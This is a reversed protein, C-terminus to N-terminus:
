RVICDSCGMLGNKEGDTLSLSFNQRCRRAESLLRCARSLPFRNGRAMRHPLTMAFKMFNAIIRGAARNISLKPRWNRARMPAIFGVASRRLASVGTRTTTHRWFLASLLTRTVLRNMPLKSRWNQVCMAAMFTARSELTSSSRATVVSEVKSLRAVQRNMPLRWPRVTACQSWSGAAISLQPTTCSRLQERVRNMSLKWRWSQVRMPAMFRVPSVGTASVSRRPSVLTAPGLLRNM